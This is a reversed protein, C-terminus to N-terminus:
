NEKKTLQALTARLDEEEVKGNWIKVREGDDDFVITTPLAGSWEPNLAEIFEGDPGTKIYSPLDAGQDKLFDLAAPEEEEFDTSIFMLTVGQDAFSRTVSQIYPFEERCPGCWTAWVNTVVFDADQNRVAELFGPGDVRILARELDEAPPAPPPVKPVEAAKETCATLLLTSLALRRM